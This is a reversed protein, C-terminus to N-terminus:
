GILEKCFPGNQRSNLCGEFWNESPREVHDIVVVDLPSKQSNLKLGLQEQLATAFTPGSADSPSAVDPLRSEDPSGSGKFMQGTGDDPTWHM